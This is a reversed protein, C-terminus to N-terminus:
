KHSRKAENKEALSAIFPAFKPVILSVVVVGSLMWMVITPGIAMDGGEYVMFFGFFLLSLALLVYFLLLLTEKM